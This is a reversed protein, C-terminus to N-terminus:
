RHRGQARAARSRWVYASTDVASLPKEPPWRLLTILIAAHSPLVLAMVAANRQGFMPLVDLGLGLLSIGAVFIALFRAAGPGRDPQFVTIAIVVAFALALPNMHFLNHNAYASVHDTFFWLYLLVVGLAGVALSWATALVGFLVRLAPLQVGAGTLLLVLGIAIGALLFPVFREPPVDRTPPRQAEFLTRESIVLPRTGGAGDPVRVDRLYAQLRMPIFGEQWADIPLDTFPGLGVDIGIQIPSFAKTLRLAHFRYTTGTERGVLADRLLGGLARDLADRVRTSCNDRFYDYRYARNEPRENWAIFERLAATQEATLALEQVHVSRNRAQYSAVTADVPFGEMWYDMRGRVFTGVYGPADFDFIGWNYAIDTGNVPDHIWIANHGFNEWIADGPGMTMLYVSVASPPAQSSAPSAALALGLALATGIMPSM